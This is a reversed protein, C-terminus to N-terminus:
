RASPEIAALAARSPVDEPASPHPRPEPQGNRLSPRARQAGTDRSRLPPREVPSSRRGAPWSFRRDARGDIRRVHVRACSPLWQGMPWCAHEAMTSTIPSPIPGPQSPQRCCRHCRVPRTLPASPRTNPRSCITDVWCHPCINTIPSHGPHVPTATQRRQHASTPTQDCRRLVGAAWIVTSWLPGSSELHSCTPPPAEMRSSSRGRPSAPGLPRRPRSRVPPPVTEGSAEGVGRRETQSTAAAPGFPM